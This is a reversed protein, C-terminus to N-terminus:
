FHYQSSILFLSSKNNLIKGMSMNLGYRGIFFTTRLSAGFRIYSTDELSTTSPTDWDGSRFLYNIQGGFSLSELLSHNMYGFGGYLGQTNVNKQTYSLPGEFPSSSSQAFIYCSEFNYENYANKFRYGAGSCSGSFTNLIKSAGSGDSRKITIFDQWSIYSLFPYLNTKVRYSKVLNEKEEMRDAISEATEEAGIRNLVKVFLKVRKKIRRAQFPENDLDIQEYKVIYLNGLRTYYYKIKKLQPLKEELDEFDKHTKLVLWNYKSYKKKLIKKYITAAAEVKGAKELLLAKYEYDSINALFNRDNDINSVEFLIRRIQIDDVTDDAFVVLSFIFILFIRLVM